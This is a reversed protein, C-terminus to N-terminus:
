DREIFKIHVKKLSSYLENLLNDFQINLDEIFKDTWADIM